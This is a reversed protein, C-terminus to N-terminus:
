WGSSRSISQYRWDLKGAIRAMSWSMLSAPLMKKLCTLMQREKGKEVKKGPKKKKILQQMTDCNSKELSSKLMRLIKKSLYANVVDEQSLTLMQLM